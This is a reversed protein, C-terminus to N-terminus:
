HLCTYPIPMLYQPDDKPEETYVLLTYRNQEDSNNRDEECTEAIKPSNLTLIIVHTM